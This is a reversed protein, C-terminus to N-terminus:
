SKSCSKLWHAGCLACDDGVVFDLLEDGPGPDGLGGELRERLLLDVGDDPVDRFVYVVVGLWECAHGHVLRADADVLLQRPAIGGPLNALDACRELTFEEDACWGPPCTAVVALGALVFLGSRWRM